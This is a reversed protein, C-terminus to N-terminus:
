KYNRRDAAMRRVWFNKFFDELVKEKVYTAHVGPCSVCQKVVKLVVKKMEEDQNSFERTLINMVSQTYELANESDM